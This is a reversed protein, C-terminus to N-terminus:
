TRSAPRARPRQVALLARELLLDPNANRDVDQRASLWRDLSDIWSAAPSGEAIRTALVGHPLSDPALGAGVRRVDMLLEIGLDLISRARARRQASATRGPFEGEQEALAAAGSAADLEGCMVGALVVIIGAAGRRSLELARGPSGGSLRALAAAEDPEIGARGLVAGTDAASLAEFPVEVLRSRVTALLRARAGCELVIVTGAVPEELTKLFANQAAENLREAERVIVVRRDSEYAKLSLFEEVTRMGGSPQKDERPAMWHVQIQELGWRLPDLEYLDPHNDSAMRRCPGCIGCPRGPGEACLLGAAFWRAARFRGIGPRGLFVLGHPLRDDAAARWLGEVIGAHGYPEFPPEVATEAAAEPESM